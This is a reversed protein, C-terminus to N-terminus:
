YLAITHTFFYNRGDWVTVANEQEVEAKIGGKGAHQSKVDEGPLPTDRWTSPTKARTIKVGVHKPYNQPLMKRNLFYNQLRILAQFM